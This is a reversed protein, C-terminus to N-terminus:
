PYVSVCLPLTSHTSPTHICEWAFTNAGKLAALVHARVCAHVCGCARVDKRHTHTLSLSLTHTHTHSLSLSLSFSCRGPAPMPRGGWCGRGREGTWGGAWGGARGARGVGACASERRGSEGVWEAGGVGSRGERRQRGRRTIPARTQRRTFPCLYTCHVPSPAPPRVPLAPPPPTRIAM